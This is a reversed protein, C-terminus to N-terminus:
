KVDEYYLSHFSVLAPVEKSPELTFLFLVLLERNETNLTLLCVHDLCIIAEHLSFLCVSRLFETEFGRFCNKQQSYM